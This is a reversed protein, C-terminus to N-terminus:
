GCRHNALYENLWKNWVEDIGRIASLQADEGAISEVLAVIRLDVGALHPDACFHDRIMVLGESELEAIVRDGEEPGIGSQRLSAYLETMFRAGKSNRRLFDIVAKRTDKQEPDTKEEAGRDMDIEILMQLACFELHVEEDKDFL